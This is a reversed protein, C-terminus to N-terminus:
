GALFRSTSLANNAQTFLKVWPLGGAYVRPFGCPYRAQHCRAATLSLCEASCAGVQVTVRTPWFARVDSHCNDGNPSAIRRRASQRTRCVFLNRPCTMFSSPIRCFQAPLKHLSVAIAGSPE